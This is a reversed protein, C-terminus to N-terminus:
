NKLMLDFIERFTLPPLGSLYPKATLESQIVDRFSDILEKKILDKERHEYGYGHLYAQYLFKLAAEKHDDDRATKSKYCAAYFYEEHGNNREFPGNVSRKAVVLRNSKGFLYSLLNKTLKNERDYEPTNISFSTARVTEFDFDKRVMVELRASPRSTSDFKSSVGFFHDGEVARTHNGLSFLMHFFSNDITGHKLYLSLRNSGNYIAEGSHNPSSDRTQIDVTGDAHIILPVRYVKAQMTSLYYVFYTGAFSNGGTKAPQKAQHHIMPLSEIHDNQGDYGNLIQVLEENKPDNVFVDVPSSYIYHKSLPETLDEPLKRFVMRGATPSYPHRRESGAYVAVLLDNAKGTFEKKFYITFRYTNERTMFDLYAILTDYNSSLVRVRGQYSIEANKEKQTMEANGNEHIHFLFHEVSNERSDSRNLAKLYYTGGYYGQYKKLKKIEGASSNEDLSHYLPPIGFLRTRHLYNYIEAPVEPRAEPPQIEDNGALEFVLLGTILNTEYGPGITSYTATLYQWALPLYRTVQLNLYTKITEESADHFIGFLIGNGTNEFSESLLEKEDISNASPHISLRAGVIKYSPKDIHKFSLHLRGTRVTRLTRLTDEYWYYCNFLLTSVQEPIKAPGSKVEIHMDWTLTDIEIHYTTILTDILGIYYEKVREITYEFKAEPETATCSKQYSNMLEVVEGRIRDKKNLPIPNPFKLHLIARNKEYSTYSYGLEPLLNNFSGFHGNHIPPHKIFQKLKDFFSLMEPATKKRLLLELEKQM